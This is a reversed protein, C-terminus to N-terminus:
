PLEPVQGGPDTTFEPYYFFAILIYSTGDFFFSIPSVEYTKTSDGALSLEYATYDAELGALNPNSFTKIGSRIRGISTPRLAM